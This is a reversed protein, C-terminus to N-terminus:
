ALVEKFFDLYQKAINDIYLHSGCGSHPYEALMHMANAVLPRNVHPPRDLDIAKYKFEKDEIEIGSAVLEKTGGQDTCIVPCGAVQAEAVSNPCADVYVLHVLATALKYMRALVHDSVPGFFMVNNYKSYKREVGQTDGNVLLLSDEIDALLFSKITDKLRKQRTWVRTSALFNHKFASKYPEVDYDNPNAGNLIIKEPKDPKCVLKHYIKKSYQSQYVIADARKVAKAKDRNLSRWDMNLDISAPGVRLVHKKAKSPCHIKGVHYSIDARIEPDDTIPIGMNHWAQVLRASFRGKGTKQKEIYKGAVHILM